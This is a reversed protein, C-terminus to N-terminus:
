DMEHFAQCHQSPGETTVMSCSSVNAKGLINSRIKIEQTSKDRKVVPGPISSNMFVRICRTIFFTGVM